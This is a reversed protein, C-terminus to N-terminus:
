LLVSVSSQKTAACKAIVVKMSKDTAEVPLLGSAVARAGGGSCGITVKAGTGVHM